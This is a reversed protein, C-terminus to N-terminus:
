YEKRSLVLQDKTIYFKGFKSQMKSVFVITDKEEVIEIAKKVAFERDEGTNVVTPGAGVLLM